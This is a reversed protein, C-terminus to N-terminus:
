KQILFEPSALCLLLATRVRSRKANEIQAQNDNRFNLAPVPVSAVAAVLDAQLAVSMAGQMLRNSVQQVLKDPEDALSMETVFDGQMDRRNFRTGKAPNFKGFGISVGDRMYNVYGAATTENLLQAEPAVLKSAATRSGPLVFGPRFFNFVSPANLPTQGLQTGPNDTVGVAYAGSDSVFNYARMFASLRLVPERLKGSTSTAAGRAEPHMLITKIVAKMDGRVGQGNNNFALAVAQVYSSSPNSTVLRQILQKSIFPGVNPHNFLTDLAIKLDAVPNAENQAPITVGLFQKEETSHFQPYGMMPRVMRDTYESGQAIGMTFCANEPFRPCAWSWGTFVKALGNIDSPGYAEIPAAGDLKPTGDVNLEHVGISFLQMIERAFNEDPVRGTKPDAKQNRLASLYIGMMPNLAVSELLDRYNGFGKEGLIELYKAVGRPREGVGNGQTSIVLIESLAFAVRQRLQDDGHLAQRWFSNLVLERFAVNNPKLTPNAAKIPAAAADWASVHSAQPKAFQEDIWASYGMKMVRAIDAENPGFTAQTLFRAAEVREPTPAPAPAPAPSPSPSPASAPPPVLPGPSPAPSPSPAPAPAPANTTPPAQGTAPNNAGRGSPTGGGQTVPSETAVAQEDNVSGDGCAAFSLAFLAALCAQSAHRLVPSQARLKSGCFPRARQAKTSQFKVSFERSLTTNIGADAQSACTQLHPTADSKCRTACMPLDFAWLGRITVTSNPLFAAITLL